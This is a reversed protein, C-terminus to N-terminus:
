LSEFYEFNVVMPPNHGKTCIANAKKIMSEAHKRRLEDADLEQGGPRVLLHEMRGEGFHDNDEDEAPPRTGNLVHEAM